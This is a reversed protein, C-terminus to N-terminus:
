NVHRLLLITNWTALFIADHFLIKFTIPPKTTVCVPDNWCSHFSVYTYLQSYNLMFKVIDRRTSYYIICMKKM